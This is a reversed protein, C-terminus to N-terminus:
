RSVTINKNEYDVGGALTIGLSGGPQDLKLHVTRSEISPPISATKNNIPKSIITEEKKVTTRISKAPIENPKRNTTTSNSTLSSSSLRRTEIKPKEEQSMQRFLIKEDSKRRMNLHFEESRRRATIAPKGNALEPPTRASAMKSDSKYHKPFVPLSQTASNEFNAKLSQVNVPKNRKDLISSASHRLLM